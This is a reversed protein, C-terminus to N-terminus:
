RLGVSSSSLQEWGASELAHFITTIAFWWIKPHNTMSGYTLSVIDSQQSKWSSQIKWSSLGSDRSKSINLSQSEPVEIHPSKM